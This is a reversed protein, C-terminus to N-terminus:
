VTARRKLTRAWKNAERRIEEVKATKLKGDRVVTRGDVIVHRVDSARAAYVLRSIVEAEEPVAHPGTLDLVVLDAKKGPEISGIENELGLARAGGLTALELM